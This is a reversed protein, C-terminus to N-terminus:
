DMSKKSKKLSKKRSKKQASSGGLMPARYTPPPNSDEDDLQPRAEPQGMQGLKDELGFAGAGPAAAAVAKQDNSPKESKVENYAGDIKIATNEITKISAGCADLLPKVNNLSRTLEAINKEIEAKVGAFKDATTNIDKKAGTFSSLYSGIGSVFDFFGGAGGKIKKTSDNKTVKYKGRSKRSKKSLDPM